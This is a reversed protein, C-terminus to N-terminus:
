PRFIRYAEDSWYLGLDDSWSIGLNNSAWSGVHALREGESLYFQTRRLSEEARKRDTIDQVTGFMRCPRGSAGKNVEGLSHITRIEENPRLIRHECDARVGSRIAEEAKGFVLERDEPHIM